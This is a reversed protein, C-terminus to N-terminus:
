GRQGHEFRQTEGLPDDRALPHREGAAPGTVAVRELAGEGGSGHLCAPLIRAQLTWPFQIADLGVRIQSPGPLISISSVSRSTLDSDLKLRFVTSNMRSIFSVPRGM